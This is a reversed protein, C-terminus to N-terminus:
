LMMRGGLASMTSRGVRASEAGNRLCVPSVLNSNSVGGNELCPSFEGEYVLRSRLRNQAGRSGRHVCDPICAVRGGKPDGPKTTAMSGPLVLQVIDAGVDPSFRMRILQAGGGLGCDDM